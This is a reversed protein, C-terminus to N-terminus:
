AKSSKSGFQVKKKTKKKKSAKRDLETAALGPAVVPETGGPVLVSLQSLQARQEFLARHMTIGM